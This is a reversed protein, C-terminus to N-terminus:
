GAADLVAAAVAAFTPVTPTVPPILWTLRGVHRGDAALPDAASLDAIAGAGSTAIRSPPLDLRVGAWLHEVGLSRLLEAHTHWDAARHGTLFVWRPNASELVAFLPGHVGRSWMLELSRRGLWEPMDLAEVPRGAVTWVLTGFV